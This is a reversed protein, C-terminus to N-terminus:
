QRNPENPKDPENEEPWLGIKRFESFESIAKVLKWKTQDIESVFPEGKYADGVSPIKNLDM